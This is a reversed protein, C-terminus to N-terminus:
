IEEIESIIKMNFYDNESPLFIEEEYWKIEVSKGIMLNANETFKDSNNFYYLWLFRQERGSNDKIVIYAYNTKEIRVVRGSTYGESPESETTSPEASNDNGMMNQAFDLYPKCGLSAMKLGLVTGIQRGVEENMEKADINNEKAIELFSGMAKEIFCQSFISSAEETSKAGMDYPLLCDCIDNAAKTTIKDKQAFILAPLFAFFLLTLLLNKSFNTM